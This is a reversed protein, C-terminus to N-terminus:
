RDRRYQRVSQAADSNKTNGGGQQTIRKDGLHGGKPPLKPSTEWM